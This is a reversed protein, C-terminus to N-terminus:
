TLFGFLKEFFPTDSEDRAGYTRLAAKTDADAEADSFDCGDLFDSRVEISGTQNRQLIRMWEYSKM